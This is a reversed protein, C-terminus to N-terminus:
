PTEDILNKYEILLEAIDKHDEALREYLELDTIEKAKEKLLKKLIELKKYKKISANYSRGIKDLITGELYPCSDLSIDSRYVMAIRMIGTGDTFVLVEDGPSVKLDSYYYREKSNYVKSNERFKVSVIGM